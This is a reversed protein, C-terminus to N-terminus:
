GIYDFVNIKNPRANIKLDKLKIKPYEYEEPEDDSEQNMEEYVKKRFCAVFSIDKDEILLSVVVPRGAQREFNLLWAEFDQKDKKSKIGM